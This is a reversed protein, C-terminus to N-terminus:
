RPEKQSGSTHPLDARHCSCPCRCAVGPTRGRSWAVGLHEAQASCTATAGAATERDLVKVETGQRTSAERSVARDVPHLLARLVLHPPFLVGHEVQVADVEVWPGHSDVSGTSREVTRPDPGLHAEDELIGVVLQEARSHEVVDGESREV